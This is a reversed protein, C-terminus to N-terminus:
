KKGSLSAYLAFTQKAIQGWSLKTAATEHAARGLRARLAGDKILTVLADALATEDASPVLLGNSDHDIVEDISGVRSAVVAKGFGLALALVGSQSGAEYPLAVIDASDFIDAVKRVPVYEDLIEFRERNRILRSYDDFDGEFKGAICIRYNDCRRAMIPEAMILHELGKNRRVTGFFLIRVIDGDKKTFAPAPDRITKYFSFEGHPAVTITDKGVKYRGALQTKMNQGHVIYADAQRVMMNQCVGQYLWQKFKLGPHQYPDHVTYVLPVKRALFLRMLSFWFNGEQTHIVDYGNMRSMLRAYSTLNRPDRLRYTNIPIRNVRPSLVGLIAEDRKRAYQVGYYFDVDGLASLANALCVSYEIPGSFLAIKM